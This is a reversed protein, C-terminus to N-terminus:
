SSGEERRAAEAAEALTSAGTRRYIRRALVMALASVSIGVVIGTLVMAHPVPDPSVTADRRAFCVLLLFAGSSMINLAVIKRLLHARRLLAHFGAAILLFALVQFLVVQPVNM